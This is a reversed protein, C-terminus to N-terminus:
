SERRREGGSEIFWHIESPATNCRGRINPHCAQMGLSAKALSLVLCETTLNVNYHTGYSQATGARGGGLGPELVYFCVAM